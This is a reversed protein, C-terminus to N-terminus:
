LNGVAVDAAFYHVIAGAIGRALAQQYRPQALRATEIPNSLFGCEILVAPMDAGVMVYFPGRKAGLADVNLGLETDLDAVTQADIMRALAAAQTAKYNQRLDALIYNLNPNYPAGAGKADANEIRALRITARATTNDLYYVAIGTAAPDPNFNLHISVFLDAHALNALRTREPLAVFYDGRRTLEARIGRARLANLLRLSIELALDKERVGAASQTGPDYGGHGPDIMVLPRGAPPNSIPSPPHAPARRVPAPASYAVRARTSPNKSKRNPRRRYGDLALLPASLNAAQGAPALRLVIAHGVLAVAYDTKGSVEVVIRSRLGSRDIARIRDLPPSERGYLPRVPLEIHANALDIWLERDHTSVHFRTLRGKVNFRLQVVAGERKLAVSDIVAARAARPLLAVQLLAAGILAQAVSRRRDV